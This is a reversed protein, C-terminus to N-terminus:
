RPRLAALESVLGAATHRAFRARLDDPGTVILARAQNITQTRESRASRKAVMLARIASVADLPDSKGQRRRDQRDSRDVEVVRIGAATVHRALGAGYSGTGEIGALCVTGFGGLWGLLRAYGAATAPFEQIGLLGGIPDLAAAVHVDAHTDVGSTIARTEVITLAM